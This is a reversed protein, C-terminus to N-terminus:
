RVGRRENEERLKELAALYEYRQEPDTQSGPFRKQLETQGPVYARRGHIGLPSQQTALPDVVGPPLSAASDVQQQQFHQFPSQFAAQARPPPSAKPITQDVQITPHHSRLTTAKLTDHPHSTVAFTPDIVITSHSPHSMPVASAPHPKINAKHIPM